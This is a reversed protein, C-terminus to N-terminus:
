DHLKLPFPVTLLLAGDLALAAFATAVDQRALAEPVDTGVRGAPAGLAEPDDDLEPPPLLLEGLAADTTRTSALVKIPMPIRTAAPIALPSQVMAQPGKEHRVKTYVSPKRKQIDM